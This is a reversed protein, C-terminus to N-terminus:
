RVVFCVYKGGALLVGAGVKHLAVEWVGGERVETAHHDILLRGRGFPKSSHRRSRVQSM